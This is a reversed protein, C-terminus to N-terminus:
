SKWGAYWEQVYNWYVTPSVLLLYREEGERHIDFLAQEQQRGELKPVFAMSAVEVKEMDHYSKTQKRSLEMGHDMMNRIAEAVFRPHWGFPLEREFADGMIMKFGDEFRDRPEDAQSVLEFLNSIILTLAWDHIDDNQQYLLDGSRVAMAVADANDSQLPPRAM